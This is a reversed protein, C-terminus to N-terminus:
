MQRAGSAYLGMRRALRVFCRILDHFISRALCVASSARMPEDRYGLGGVLLLESSYGM